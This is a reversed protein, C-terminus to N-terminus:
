KAPIHSRLVKTQEELNVSRAQGIVYISMTVQIEKVVGVDKAFWLTDRVNGDEVQIRGGLTEIVGSMRSTIYAVKLCNSFTGAPVTVTETGELTAATPMEVGMHKQTGMKWSEGARAAGKLYLLPPHYLNMDESYSGDVWVRVGHMFLDGQRWGFLQVFGGSVESLKGNSVRQEKVTSRSLVIDGGEQKYHAPAQLIEEDVIGTVDTVNTTQGFILTTKQTEEYSWRVGPTLSYLPKVPTPTEDAARTTGVVVFFMLLLWRFLRNMDVEM